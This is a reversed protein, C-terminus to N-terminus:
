NVTNASCNSTLTGTITLVRTTGTAQIIATAVNTAVELMTGVGSANDYFGNYVNDGSADSSEDALGKGDLHASLVVYENKLIPDSGPLVAVVNDGSIAGISTRQSITASIGLEMPVYTESEISAAMEDFSLPSEAFLERAGQELMFAEAQLGEFAYKPADHEDVTWYKDTKSGRM